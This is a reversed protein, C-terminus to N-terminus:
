DDDIKIEFTGDLLKLEQNESKDQVKDKSKSPVNVMFLYSLPIVLFDHMMLIFLVCVYMLIWNLRKLATDFKEKPLLGVNCVM